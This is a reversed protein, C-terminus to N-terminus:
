AHEDARLDREESKVLRKTRQEDNEVQVIDGVKYVRKGVDMPLIEGIFEECPWWHGFAYFMERGVDSGLIERYPRM